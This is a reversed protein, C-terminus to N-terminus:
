RERLHRCNCGGSATFASDVLSRGARDVILVSPEADTLIAAVEGGSLRNNLIVTIAGIKAAGFLVEVRRDFQRM